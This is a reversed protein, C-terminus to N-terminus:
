KHFKSQYYLWLWYLNPVSVLILSISLVVIILLNNINLPTLRNLAIFGNLTTATALVMAMRSREKLAINRISAQKSAKHLIYTATWDVIPLLLLIIAV